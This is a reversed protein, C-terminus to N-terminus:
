NETALEKITKGTVQEIAKQLAHMPTDAKHLHEYFRKRTKMQKSAPIQEYKFQILWKGLHLQEDTAANILEVANAKMTDPPVETEYRILGERLVDIRLHSILLMAFAIDAISPNM